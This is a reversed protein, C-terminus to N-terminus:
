SRPAGRSLRTARPAVRRPRTAVRRPRTSHDHTGDRLRARRSGRGTPPIGSAATPRRGLGCLAHSATRRKGFSRDTARHPATGCLAPERAEIRRDVMRLRRRPSPSRHRLTTGLGFRDSQSRRANRALDSRATRVFRALCNPARAYAGHAAARALFAHKRNRAFACRTRRSGVVAVRTIGSRGGCLHPHAPSRPKSFKQSRTFIRSGGTGPAKRRRAM